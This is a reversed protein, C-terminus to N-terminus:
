LRSERVLGYLHLSMRSVFDVIGCEDTANVDCKPFDAPWKVITRGVGTPKITSPAAVTPSSAVPTSPSAVTPSNPVATSPVAVTPSNAVPAPGEVPPSTPLNELIPCNLALLDCMVRDESSAECFEAGCSLSDDPNCCFENQGRNFMCTEELLGSDTQSGLCLKWDGEFVYCLDFTHRDPGQVTAEVEVRLCSDPNDCKNCEEEILCGNISGVGDKLGSCDCNWDAFETSTCWSSPDGSSVEQLRRVHNILNLTVSPPVLFVLLVVLTYKVM